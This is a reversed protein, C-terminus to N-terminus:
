PGHHDGCPGRCPVVGRLQGVFRRVSAYRASFGHDDVLDQWIAMANRGLRLADAILDRFPECASATPAREPTSSSASDTSVVATTAPKDEPGDALVVYDRYAPATGQAQPQVREPM